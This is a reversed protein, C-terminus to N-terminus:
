SHRTKNPNKKFTIKKKKKNKTKKEVYLFEQDKM